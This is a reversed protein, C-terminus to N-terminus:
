RVNDSVINNLYTPSNRPVIEMTTLDGVFKIRPGRTSIPDNVIVGGNIYQQTSSYNGIRVFQSRELLFAGTWRLM